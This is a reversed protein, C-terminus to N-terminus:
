PPPCAPSCANPQMPIYLGSIASGGNSVITNNGAGGKAPFYIGDGNNASITNGLVTGGVGAIYVGMNDNKSVINGEVHCYAGCWIGYLNSSINSNTVKTFYGSEGNGISEAFVGVRGNATIIMDSVTLFQAVSRIADNTFGRVTGHEVRLARNFTTIGNRGAGSGALTHGGMEITVENARVEIGNVVTTVVLNTALRYTGSVSITIPFGPADGPTIGGASAAAQTILIDGNDNTVAHASAASLVAAFTAYAIRKM